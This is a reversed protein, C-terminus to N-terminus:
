FIINFYTDIIQKNDEDNEKKQKHKIQLLKRSDPNFAGNTHCCNIGM